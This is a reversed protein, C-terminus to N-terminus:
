TSLLYCYYFASNVKEPVSKSLKLLSSVLWDKNKNRDEGKDSLFLLANAPDFIPIAIFDKDSLRSKSLCINNPSPQQTPPPSSCLIPISNIQNGDSKDKKPPYMEKVIFEMIGPSCPVTRFHMNNPIDCFIM